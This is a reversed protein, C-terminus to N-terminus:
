RMLAARAHLVRAGQELRMFYLGPKLAPTDGLEVVHEGAGLSGVARRAVRRGAVDFLELTAPEESALTLWV